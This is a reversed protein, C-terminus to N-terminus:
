HAPQGSVCLHALYAALLCCLVSAVVNAMAVLAQGDSMLKLTEMSFSSFTTFGGMFGVLVLLKIKEDDSLGAVLVICFSGLVNVAFTWWPFGDSALMTKLWQGIGYRAAGGCASGLAVLLFSM